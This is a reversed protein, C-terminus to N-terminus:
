ESAGGGSLLHDEAADLSEAAGEELEDDAVDKIFPAVEGEIEYEGVRALWAAFAWGEQFRVDAVDDKDVMATLFEFEENDRFM